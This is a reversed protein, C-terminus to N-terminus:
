SRRKVLLLASYGGSPPHKTKGKMQEAIGMRDIQKAIYVGSAGGAAPDSYSIGKAALLSQKFAEPTSIDPKSAGTKIGVAFISQGFLTETGPRDQRGQALERCQKQDPDTVDAQRM